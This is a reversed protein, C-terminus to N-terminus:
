PEIYRWLGSNWMAGILINSSGDNVASIHAAGQTLGVPTASAFWTSTGPQAALEFSSDFTAGPGAPFGFMAYVNQSTGIVVSEHNTLGVHTWTQGYDTSRLVGQGLISNSGAMFVVGNSDPQYIQAAGPPHENKDVQVWTAGSNTTRWTGNLGGSQEGIWLWTGRTSAADGTNIFFVFGTRGNTLMGNDLSVATWNRGGDDSEVISDHEHGAMILHDEDYPDVLPAYYDQRLLGPAVLRKTWNVGGDVSTWFGEGSGAICGQYLTPGKTSPGPGGGGGGGSGGSPSVTIGGVCDSVAAANRGTNIPGTWTVGYDTSKWIGQCNFEAYLNSPNSPDAEVSQTGDNGCLNDTLDVGAPTVNIWTGFTPPPLNPVAVVQASNASEGASNFASVVYYYTTGNTVSSDTYGTSSPAALQTYPGGSTTARKVHYGTAGTSATWTLTVVANGPTATLNTPAAPSTSSAGPTASVQASNASEGTSNFASVVYYYTTGNTVSSDTYGTSSPAALQPYPGGSTTARKVNYGTAGASASWTLTVVANGATATLNTPAAPPVGTASPTASVQTSNASEGAATLASVVYYYTTGNTVSSDTYGTSSPAALQTYPGGSTTARKVNYGTAGASASWTLTVVANGPTATLNIPVAPSGNQTGPTASVQASNASSGAATLTSVVYYYTTGNTVSSDTYGNSTPAAVQAIQTYPGGDATARKVVYGTADPSATWTLTVVANGATATLNAPVVPADPVKAHPPLCGALLVLCAAIMLGRFAISCRPHEIM